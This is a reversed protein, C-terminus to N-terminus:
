VRSSGRPTTGAHHGAPRNVGVDEDIAVVGAHGLQMATDGHATGERGDDLRIAVHVDRAKVLEEGVVLALGERAVAVEDDRVGQRRALHRPECIEDVPEASLSGGLDFGVTAEVEAVEQAFVRHEHVEEVPRRREGLTQPMRPQCM